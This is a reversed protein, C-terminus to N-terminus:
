PQHSLKWVWPSTAVTERWSTALLGQERWVPREVPQKLTRMVHCSAEGLPVLQSPPLWSLLWLRKIVTNPPNQILVLLLYLYKNYPIPQCSSSAPPDWFRCSSNALQLGLVALTTRTQCTAPKLGLFLQHKLKCGFEPLFWHGLKFAM